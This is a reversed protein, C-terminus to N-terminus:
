GRTKRLKRALAGLGILEAGLLFISAPEPVAAMTGQVTLGAPSYIAPVVGGGYPDAFGIYSLIQDNIDFTHAGATLYETFVGSSNIPGGLPVAATFGLSVGDVFAQYVDGVLCCDTVTMTLMGDFPATFPVAGGIGGVAGLSGLGTSGAPSPNGVSANLGANFVTVDGFASTALCLAL